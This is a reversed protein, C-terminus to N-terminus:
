WEIKSTSSPSAAPIGPKQSPNCLYEAPFPLKESAIVPENYRLLVEEVYLTKVVSRDKFLGSPRPIGNNCLSSRSPTIDISTLTSPAPDSIVLNHNCACENASLNM